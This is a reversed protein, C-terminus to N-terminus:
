ESDEPGRKSYEGAWIGYDSGTRAKYDKCEARVPCNFCALIAENGLIAQGREPFFVDPETDGDSPAMGACNARDM